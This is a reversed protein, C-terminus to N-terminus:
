TMAETLLEKIRQKKPKLDVGFKDSATEMAHKTTAKDLNFCRVYAKVWRKLAKDTPVKQGDVEEFMDDEDEEDSSEEKAAKKKNAEAKTKKKKKAAAAAKKKNDKIWTKTLEESPKALFDLLRDVLFDKDVKEGDTASRDIDLFDCLNKLGPNTLKRAKDGYKRELKEDVAKQEDDDDATNKTPLYGSFELLQQKRLKEKSAGGFVLQHAMKLEQGKMKAAKISECTSPIDELKAGRGDLHTRAEAKAAAAAQFDEAEFVAVTKRERKSTTPLGLPNIELRKSAGESKLKKNPAGSSASATNSDELEMAAAAPAADATVAKEPKAQVPEVEM